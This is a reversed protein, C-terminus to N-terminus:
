VLIKKKLLRIIPMVSKWLDGKKGLGKPETPRWSDLSTKDQNYFFQQCLKVM